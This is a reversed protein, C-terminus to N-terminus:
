QLTDTHTLPDTHEKTRAATAHQEWFTQYETVPRIDPGAQTLPATPEAPTAARRVLVQKVAAYSHCGAALLRACVAEIDVCADTRPLNALGYIARQGPRGLRAFLTQAFATTHPGIQEARALVRATERSPNFLRDSAAMVFAGKRLAHAHRRLVTGRGDLIEIGHAYVRVTVRTHV